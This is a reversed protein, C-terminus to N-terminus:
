VTVEKGEYQPFDDFIDGIRISSCGASLPITLIVAMLLVEFVIRRM